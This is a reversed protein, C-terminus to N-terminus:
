PKKEGTETLEKVKAELAVIREQAKALDIRTSVWARTLDMLTADMAAITPDQRPQAHAAPVLVLAALLPLTYRTM